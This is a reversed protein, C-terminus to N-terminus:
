ARRCGHTIRCEWRNWWGREVLRPGSPTFVLFSIAAPCRCSMSALAAAPARPTSVPSPSYLGLGRLCLPQLNLNVLGPLRDRLGGPLLLAPSPWNARM